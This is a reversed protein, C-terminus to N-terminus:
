PNEIPTWGAYRGAWCDWYWSSPYVSDATTNCDYTWGRRGQWFWAHLTFLCGALGAGVVYMCMDNSWRGRIDIRASKPYRTTIRYVCRKLDWGPFASNWCYGYSYHANTVSVRYQYLYALDIRVEAAPVAFQEFLTMKAWGSLATPSAGMPDVRGIPNGQGYGHQNLTQPRSYSGTLVDRTTFRGLGPVYQRTTMDVFGTDADTYQSQFGLGTAEGSSYRGTSHHVFGAGPDKFSFVVAEDKRSGTSASPLLFVTTL